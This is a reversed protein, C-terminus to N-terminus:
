FTFSLIMMISGKDRTEFRIPLPKGDSGIPGKTNPVFEDGLTKASPISAYGFGLGFGTRKATDATKVTTKTTTDGETTSTPPRPGQALTRKSSAQFNAGSHFLRGNIGEPTM